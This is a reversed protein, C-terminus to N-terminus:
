YLFQTHSKESCCVGSLVGTIGVVQGAEKQIFCFVFSRCNQQVKRKFEGANNWSRSLRLEDRLRKNWVVM